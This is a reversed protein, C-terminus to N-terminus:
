LPALSGASPSAIAAAAGTSLLACSQPKRETESASHSSTNGPSLGRLGIDGAVRLFIMRLRPAPCVRDVAEATREEIPRRVVADFEFDRFEPTQSALAKQSALGVSPPRELMSRSMACCPSALSVSGRTISASQELARETLM